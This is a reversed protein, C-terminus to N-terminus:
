LKRGKQLLKLRSIQSKRAPVLDQVLGNELGIFVAQTEITTYKFLDIMKFSTKAIPKLTEYLELIRISDGGADFFNITTPLNKRGLVKEWIEKVLVLGPSGEGTFNNEITSINKSSILAWDIKGSKNITLENSRFYKKPLWTRPFTKLLFTNIQEEDIASNSNSVVAFLETSWDTNVIHLEWNSDNYQNLMTQIAILDIRNGQVKAQQDKRALYIPGDQGLEFFDGTAFSRSSSLSLEPLSNTYGLLCCEGRMTLLVKKLGKHFQGFLGGYYASSNYVPLGIPIDECRDSALNKLQVKFATCGVTTETPGYENYVEIVNPLNQILSYNLKEGGLVLKTAKLESSLGAMKLWRLHSPTMKLLHFIGKWSVLEKLAELDNDFEPIFVSGGCFFPLLYSTVTLDVSLSSFLATTKKEDFSYLESAWALYNAVSSYSIEVGKPEGTTGSTFITYIPQYQPIQIQALDAFTCSKDGKVSSSIEAVKYNYVAKIKEIRETAENSALPIFCRGTLIAALVTAVFDIGRGLQILIRDEPLTNELLYSSVRSVKVLLQQYNIFANNSLYIAPSDSLTHLNQLIRNQLNPIEVQRGHDVYAPLGVSTGIDQLQLDQKYIFLEPLLQMCAKFMQCHNTDLQRSTFAQIAGHFIENKYGISSVLPIGQGSRGQNTKIEFNSPIASDNEFIFSHLIKLNGNEDLLNQGKIQDTLSLDGHELQESWQASFSKLYANLNEKPNNQFLFILNEIGCGFQQLEQQTRRKAISLLHAFSSQDLIISLSLHAVAFFFLHLSIGNILCYSEVNKSIEKSYSWKMQELTGDVEFVFDKENYDKLRNKWYSLTSPDTVMPINLYISPAIKINSDILLLDIFKILLAISAADSIVHHIVFILNGSKAFCFAAPSNHLNLQITNSLHSLDIDANWKFFEDFSTSFTIHPNEKGVIKVRLAEFHQFVAFAIKAIEPESIQKTLKIEYLGINSRSDIQNMLWMRKQFPTLEIFEQHVPVAQTSQQKQSVLKALQFLTPRALFRGLSIKIGILSNIENLLALSSISNKGYHYISRNLDSDSSISGVHKQWISLLQQDIRDFHLIKDDNDKKILSRLAEFNIKGNLTTPIKNTYIVKSPIFRADIRDFLATYVDESSLTMSFSQFLYLQNESYLLSVSGLNLIHQITMTVESLNIRIGDIKIESDERGLFYLNEQLDYIGLDGTRYCSKFKGFPLFSESLSNIYGRSVQPGIAVIEGPFGIPVIRFHHDCLVIKMTRSIPKGLAYRYYSRTETTNALIGVTTETPGYHNVFVTEPRALKLKKVVDSNLPEGGFILIKLPLLTSADGSFSSILSAFHAPVLKLLDVKDRVMREAFLHPDISEQYEFVSLTKGLAMALFISTYGLDAALSSVVALSKCLSANPLREALGDTYVAINEHSISVGKPINTTGSTFLLYAEHNLDIDDIEKLSVIKDSHYILDELHLSPISINTNNLDLMICAQMKSEHFVQKKREEAWRIDFPVASCGARWIGILTPVFYISRDVIVGVRSGKPIDMATLQDTVAQSFRLAQSFSLSNQRSRFAIESPSKTAAQLWQNLISTTKARPSTELEEDALLNTQLLGIQSNKLLRWVARSLSELVHPPYNKCGNLRLILGDSAEIFEFNLSFKSNLTKHWGAKFDQIKLHSAKRYSFFSDFAEAGNSNNLAMLKLIDVFPLKSHRLALLFVRKAAIAVEQLTKFNKLDLVLPVTNIFNGITNRFGDSRISVVTGLYVHDRRKFASLVVSTAALLAQPMSVNSASCFSATETTDSQQTVFYGSSWQNETELNHANQNQFNNLQSEWYKQHTILNDEIPSTLDFYNSTPLEFKEQSFFSHSLTDLINFSEADFIIHHILFGIGIAKNKEIFIFFRSLPDKLIDLKQTRVTRDFDTYCDLSNSEITSVQATIESFDYRANSGEIILKAKFIPNAEILQNIFDQAKELATYSNNLPILFPLVYASHTEDTLTAGLMHKQYANLWIIKNM